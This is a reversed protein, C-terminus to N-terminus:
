KKIYFDNKTKLIKSLKQYQILLLHNDIYGYFRETDYPSDKTRGRESSNKQIGKLNIKSDNKLVISINFLATRKKIEETSFKANDNLVKECFVNEFNEFYSLAVISDLILSDKKEEKFIIKNSKLKEISFSDDLNNPYTIEIKTIEEKPFNFITKDIWNTEECSFRSNLYGKFGPIHFVYPENKLSDEIIMYTGLQDQTNGGVRITKVNNTNYFLKVTTHQVDMRKLINPRENVGVPRQIDMNEITELLLDIQNENARFENNVYWNTDKKELLVEKVGNPCTPCATKNKLIIKRIEKVERKENINLIEKGLDNKTLFLYIIIGLILILMFLVSIYKKM